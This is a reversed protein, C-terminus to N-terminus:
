VGGAECVSPQQSLFCRAPIFVGFQAFFWCLHFEVSEESDRLSLGGPCDRLLVKRVSVDSTPDRSYTM